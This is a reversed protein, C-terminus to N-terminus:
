IMRLILIANGAIGAWKGALLIPNDVATMEIISPKHIAYRVPGMIDM